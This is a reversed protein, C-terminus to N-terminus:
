CETQYELIKLFKKSPKMIPPMLLTLLSTKCRFLSHDSLGCNTLLSCTISIDRLTETIDYDILHDNALRASFNGMIILKHQVYSIANPINSFDDKEQVTDNVTSAYCSIITASINLHLDLTLTM